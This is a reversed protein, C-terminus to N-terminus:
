RHAAIIKKFIYTIGAILRIIQRSQIVLRIPIRHM